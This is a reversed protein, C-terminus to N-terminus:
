KEWIMWPKEANAYMANIELYDKYTDVAFWFGEHRYLVMQRDAAATEFPERELICKEDLYKFFDKNFVFYGGNILDKLRPKEKFALVDGNEGMQIQGYKSHPHFGTITALKGQQNHFDLLANVDVDSIGDGYTAFFLDSKIYKEIKKIRGGTNTDRGTDAFIINWDEGNNESGLRRIEKSRTNLEFDNNMYEYNLFYEKIAEGKYGLCLIFSKFGFYAYGKMIHWLIPKGGIKVLPKPKYETEERLRTGKGGCLIVVPIDKHVM